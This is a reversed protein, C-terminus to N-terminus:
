VITLAVLLSALLSFSVALAFPRFFQGSLGGLLGMPAFVAVTTVTSATIATGVEKTASLILDKSIKEKQLRRVINEIVVISDDVVRGTAVAMGGLTMMNFTVNTFFKLAIIAVLLSLPISVVAILTARSNRLFFLIIISAFLAGLGGERLMSSVSEKVDTARDYQIAVGLKGEQKIEDYAAMVQDSVEVTNADATKFVNLTVGAKADTRSIVSLENGRTIEAIDGIRVIPAPILVLNEVDELTEVGGNMFVPQKVKELTIEGLPVNVYNAELTQAVQQYTIQYKAMAGADLHIFAGDEQLGLVEVKAVGELGQLTPVVQDKVMSEMEQEPVGEQLYVSSYIIAQGGTSFKQVEPKEVGQPLKMGGLVEEVERAKEKMDVSYGFELSFASISNSSQSTVNKVGEINRLMKEMPLTVTDLVENPSAGPYLTVVGLGPFAIDPLQEQKFQGSAYIGGLAILLSLLIVAAPNKLSFRTFFSM